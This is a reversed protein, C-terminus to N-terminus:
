EIKFTHERPQDCSSTTCVQLYLRGEGPGNGAKLKQTIRFPGEIVRSQGLAGLDKDKGKPMEPPGDAAWGNKPSIELQVPKGIKEGLAYAHLNPDLKVDVAMISDAKNFTIALSYHNAFDTLDQDIPAEKKKCGVLLLASGLILM